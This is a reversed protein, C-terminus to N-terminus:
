NVATHEILRLHTETLLQISLSKNHFAIAQQNSTIRQAACGSLEGDM